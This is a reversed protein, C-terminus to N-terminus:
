HTDRLCRAGNIGTVAKTLLYYHECPYVPIDVGAMAGAQRSWLGTCLAIADCRIRGQNTDIGTIRGAQTFIATVDTNEFVKGGNAQAGKILSACLDTPSVRGDDPSWVAGIVDESNM